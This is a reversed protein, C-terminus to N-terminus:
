CPDNFPVWKPPILGAVFTHCTQPIGGELHHMTQKPQHWIIVGHKPSFIAKGGWFVLIVISFRGNSSTHGISFPHNKLTMNTKLPTLESRGKAFGLHLPLIHISSTIHLHPAHHCSPSAIFMKCMDNKQLRLYILNYRIFIAKGQFDNGGNGVHYVKKKTIIFM